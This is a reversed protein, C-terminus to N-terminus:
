AAKSRAEGSTEALAGPKSAQLVAAALSQLAEGEITEDVLLAAATKELLNRNSELIGLAVAYQEDIIRPVEEDIIQATEDSYARNGEPLAGLFQAPQRSAFYVQGLRRSM